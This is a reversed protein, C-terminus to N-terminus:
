VVGMFFSFSGFKHQNEQFGCTCDRFLRWLSMNGINVPKGFDRSVKHLFSIFSDVVVSKQFAVTNLAKMSAIKLCIKFYGLFYWIFYFIVDCVTEM